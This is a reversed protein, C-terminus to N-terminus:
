FDCVERLLAVQGTRKVMRRVLVECRGQTVHLYRVLLRQIEVPRTRQQDVHFQSVWQVLGTPPHLAENFLALPHSVGWWYMAFLTWAAADAAMTSAEVVPEDRNFRKAEALVQARGGRCLRRWSLRLQRRLLWECRDMLDIGLDQPAADNVRLGGPFSRVKKGGQGAWPVLCIQRWRAIMEDRASPRNAARIAPGAQHQPRGGAPVPRNLHVSKTLWGDQGEAGGAPVLIPLAM